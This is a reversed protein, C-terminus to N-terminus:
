VSGVERFYIIQYFNHACFDSPQVFAKDLVFLISVYERPASSFRAASKAM